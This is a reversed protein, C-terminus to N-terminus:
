LKKEVYLLWACAGEASEHANAGTPCWNLSKWLRGQIETQITCGPWKVLGARCQEVPRVVNYVMLGNMEQTPADGVEIELHGGGQSCAIHPGSGGGNRGGARALGHDHLHPPYPHCMRM